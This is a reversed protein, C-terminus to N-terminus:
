SLEHNETMLKFNDLLIYKDSKLSQGGSSPNKIGRLYKIGYKKATDLVSQNDDIILSDETEFGTKKQLHFWFLHEEKCYGLDHSTVVHDFLNFIQFKKNKRNLSIPDANTALILKSCKKRIALVFDVAGERLRIKHSISRELESIDIGLIQNWYTFRYWDLQGKKFQLLFKIKLKASDLSIHNKNAFKIPLWKKWVELDFELDLLTGDMDLICTEIKSWNLECKLNETKM